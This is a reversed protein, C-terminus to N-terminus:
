TEDYMVNIFNTTAEKLAIINDNDSMSGTNDLVM